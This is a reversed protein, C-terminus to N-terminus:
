FDTLTPLKDWKCPKLFPPQATSDGLDGARGSMLSFCTGTDSFALIGPGAVDLALATSTPIPIVPPYWLQSPLHNLM